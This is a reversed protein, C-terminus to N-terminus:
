GDAGGEDLYLSTLEDRLYVFAEDPTSCVRYLRRDEPSITGFKILAEIKLVEDWFEKGYLVIPMAKGTKRTQVLTMLEFLEDMTGFGGPFVVVAKALYVFWFKRMFFYHFEFALERTIFPNNTAELPLSIGLGVSMGKAESAGRNAAEMIGPGGGSCVIFRWDPVALGKSWQTMKYALSRADEYYRSMDVASEARQIAEDVGTKRADELRARAVDAPLTRASGFFVVTDRVNYHRFRSHPELYESLIRLTRADRSSLFDLNKYAKDVKM